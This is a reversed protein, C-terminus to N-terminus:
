IFFKFFLCKLARVECMKFACTPYRESSIAVVSNGFIIAPTILFLFSLLPEKDPCQIGIIGLPHNEQFVKGYLKTEVIRGEFQAIHNAWYLLVTVAQEVELFCFEKTKGTITCLESIFEEKKKNLIESAKRLVAARKMKYTCEWKPQSSIASSVAKDIDSKNASAVYAYPENNVDFAQLFTEDNSNVFSGGIFLKCYKQTKKGDNNKLPIISSSPAESGYSQIKNSDINKSGNEDKELCLLHSFVGEKGGINSNGSLYLSGNSISPSYINQCNVWVTRSKLKSAAELSLFMEECWISVNSHKKNQNFMAISEKVTRFQEIYVGPGCRVNQDKLGSNFNMIAAPVYQDGEETINCKSVSFLEDATYGLLLNQVQAVTAESSMIYFPPRCDIHDGFSGCVKLTLLKVFKKQISEQLYIKCIPWPEKVDFIQIIELINSIAADLDASEYIIVSPWQNPIIECPINKSISGSLFTKHKLIIKDVNPFSSLSSVKCSIVNFAGAPLGASDCLQALLFASLNEKCDVLCIAANGSALVASLVWLSSVLTDNDCIICVVGTPKWEESLDKDGVLAAYYNFSDILYPVNYKERLRGYKTLSDIANLLKSQQEIYESVRYLVKSKTGAEYQRWRKFGEQSNEVVAELEDSSAWKVTASLGKTIEIDVTEEESSALPMWKGDVFGTICGCTELWQKALNSHSTSVSAEKMTKFLDSIIASQEKSISISM